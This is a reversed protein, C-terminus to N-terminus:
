CICIKTLNPLLKGSMDEVEVHTADLKTTLSAQLSDATVGSTSQDIAAMVPFRHSFSRPFSRKTLGSTRGFITRALM